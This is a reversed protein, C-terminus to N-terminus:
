VVSKRDTTATTVLVTPPTREVRGGATSLMARLQRAARDLDPGAIVGAQPIAVHAHMDVTISKAGSTGTNGATDTASCTITHVGVNNVLINRDTGTLNPFQDLESRMSEWDCQARPADLFEGVDDALDVGVAALGDAEM